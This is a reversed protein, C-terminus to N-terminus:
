GNSSTRNLFNEVSRKKEQLMLITQVYRGDRERSGILQQEQEAIKQITDIAINVLSLANTAQVKNM